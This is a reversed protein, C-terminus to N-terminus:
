VDFPWQDQVRLHDIPRSADAVPSEADVLLINCFDRAATRGGCLVLKWRLSKSSAAKKVSALFDNM